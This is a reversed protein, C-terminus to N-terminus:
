SGTIISVEASSVSPMITISPDRGAPTVHFHEVDLRGSRDYSATNMDYADAVSASFALEVSIVEGVHFQSTGKAFRITLSAGHDPQALGPATLM